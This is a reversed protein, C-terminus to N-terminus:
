SSQRTAAYSVLATTIMIIMQAGLRDFHSNPSHHAVNSAAKISSLAEDLWEYTAKGLKTEWSSKLKPVKQGDIEVSEFFQDLAIRCSGAAEDYLGLGFQKQAKQLAKFSHDLRACSDLSIAPLEISVVKGYGLGPLVKGRWIDEHIVIPIEGYISGVQNLGLPFASKFTINGFGQEQINIRLKAEFSKNERQQEIWEIRKMDLPIEINIYQEPTYDQGGARMVNLVVPSINALKENGFVLEGTMMGLYIAQTEKPWPSGVEDALTLVIQFTLRPWFAINSGHYTASNVQATVVLGTNTAYLSTKM